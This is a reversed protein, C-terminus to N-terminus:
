PECGRGQRRETDCRDHGGTSFASDLGAGGILVDHLRGGVLHDDGANGYARLRPTRSCNELDPAVDQRASSLRLRDDGRGGKLTVRCGHGSLTNRGRDGLIVVRQAAGWIDEANRLTSKMDHWTAFDRALDVLLSTDGAGPEDWNDEFHAGDHGAGLDFRSDPGAYSSSFVLGDAGRGLHADVTAGPRVQLYDRGAGTTVQYPGPDGVPTGGPQSTGTGASIQDAFASGTFSDAGPGLRASTRASAASADVVDNGAGPDIFIYSHFGPLKRTDVLCILDDGEKADV